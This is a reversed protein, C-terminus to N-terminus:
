SFDLSLIVRGVGTKREKVVRAKADGNSEVFDVFDSVGGGVGFYLVKAAVLCEGKIADDDASRPLCALRMTDVLSPLSDTRYITESTLVLNFAKSHLIPLQATFSSWSGSFFRITINYAEKLSTLFASKLAPTIPLEFPEPTSPFPPLDDTEPEPSTTRSTRYSLSAPSLYWTLLINPLTVLELVSDNYDQLYIITEPLQTTDSPPPNFFLDCLIYLSPVATGCGLELVDKGCLGKLGKISDLYEVLDISCEWTKLGGEYIRPVLDSPADIFKLASAHRHEKTEGEFVNSEGLADSGMDDSGVDDPGTGESILQFRADFLDRRNLTISKEGDRLPITLPSCSILSPLANLLDQMLIEKCPEEAPVDAESTGNQENVPETLQDLSVGLEPDDTTDDLDFSFKFM